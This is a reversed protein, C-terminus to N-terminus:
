RYTLTPFWYLTSDSCDELPAAMDSSRAGHPILGSLEGQKWHSSCHARTAPRAHGLVPVDVVVATQGAPVVPGRIEPAIANPGASPSSEISNTHDRRRGVGM